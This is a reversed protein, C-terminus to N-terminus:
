LSPLWDDLHIEPDEGLFLNIPPVRGRRAKRTTTSGTVTPVSVTDPISSTGSPSTARTGRRAILQSKLQSIEADRAALVEDFETVQGCSM